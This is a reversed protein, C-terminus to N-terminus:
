ADLGSRSWNFRADEGHIMRGLKNGGPACVIPDHSCRNSRTIVRTSAAVFAFWTKRGTSSFALLACFSRVVSPTNSREFNKKLRGVDMTSDM